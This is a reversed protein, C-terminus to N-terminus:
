FLKAGIEIGKFRVYSNNAFRSKFLMVIILQSVKINKNIIHFCKASRSIAQIIQINNLQM